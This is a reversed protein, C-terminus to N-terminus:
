SMKMECVGPISFPYVSTTLTRYINVNAFGSLRYIGPKLNLSLGSVTNLGAVFNLPAYAVREKTTSDIIAIYGLGAAAVNINFGTIKLDRYVRFWNGYNTAPTIYAGSTIQSRGFTTSVTETQKLSITLDTEVNPVTYNTATSLVDGTLDLWQNAFGNNPGLLQISEGICVSKPAPTPPTATGASVSLGYQVVDTNVQGNHTTVFRLKYNGSALIRTGVLATNVINTNTFSGVVIPNAFSGGANSVQVEIKTSPKAVANLTLAIPLDEGSCIQADNVPYVLSICQQKVVVPKPVYTCGNISANVNYSGFDALSLNTRSVSPGNATFGNPGSWVYTAGAVQNVSLTITEGLCTSTTGTTVLTPTALGSLCTANAFRDRIVAGPLPGFGKAFDISALSHCYSM